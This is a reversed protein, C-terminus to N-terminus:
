IEKIVETLVEQINGKRFILKMGRKQLRAIGKKGIKASIIIGCDRLIEYVDLTKLHQMTSEYPNNRKENLSFQARNEIKYIFMQKAMGLMRPFINIGDNTPIAIRVHNEKNGELKRAKLLRVYDKFFFVEGFDGFKHNILIQKWDREIFDFAYSCEILKFPVRLYFPMDNYCFENYDLIFFSGNSKLVKFVNKIIVERVDQPFGHLVFSIFVKDFKERLFPLSQDVRGHIIKINPFDACKKKFQSIMEQSIDVGILRGEKSLYKAMLCANRGTGTGLDLIRDSPEIGMSKISREIFPPYRGFTAFDLLADYHTAMFGKAEVKSEPYYSCM